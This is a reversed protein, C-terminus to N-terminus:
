EEDRVKPAPEQRRTAQEHSRALREYQEAVRILADRIAPIRDEDGMMRLLEARQRYYDAKSNGTMAGGGIAEGGQTSRSLDDAAAQFICPSEAM